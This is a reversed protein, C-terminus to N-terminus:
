YPEYSPKHHVKTILSGDKNEVSLDLFNISRSIHSDLKINEDMQNWREIQKSLHREPWNITIFLDDIYRLYLGGSNKVQNAIPREFFFMYCITMTLTLPSGM